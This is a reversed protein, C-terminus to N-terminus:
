LGRLKQIMAKRQEHLSQELGVVYVHPNRMRKHTPHLLALGAQARNRADHITEQAAIMRGARFIPQLPRYVVTGPPFIRVQTEDERRVSTVPQVLIGQSHGPQMTVPDAAIVPIITDGDYRVPRGAKDCQIYRLVDLEGPLSIKFPQESLKIVPRMFHGPLAPQDGRRVAERMQEIEVQSLDEGFVAALKYVAGLAPQARATALNTGVGWIDIVAGEHRIAAITEEDLENSAVIKAQTFGAEDLLSRATRSLYTLDGSDLRVGKLAIDHDRCVRIAKKVGEVSDYTDVLFIGNHPMARGYSAFAELENEHVMVLAHAFTGVAPIGYYKGALMNSTGSIGGIWAARTHELGGLAQARRLGFDVVPGGGAVEVLRAALTAFLSQSNLANLIAGEVLLCQWLPGHVRMIPEDPFALEGEPMADISLENEVTALMDIFAPSFLKQERGQADTVTQARMWDLDRADMRWGKRLWEFIINQGATILYGGRFPNQRIYAHFTTKVNHRKDAFFAQAMTLSYLDGWLASERSLPEEYASM